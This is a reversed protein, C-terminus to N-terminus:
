DHLSAVDHDMMIRQDKVTAHVLMPGHRRAVGKSGDRDGDDPTRVEDISAPRCSMGGSVKTASRKTATSIGAIKTTFRGSALRSMRRM